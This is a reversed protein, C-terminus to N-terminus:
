KPECLNREIRLCNQELDPLATGLFGDSISYVAYQQSKFNIAFQSLDLKVGNRYLRTQKINLEIVPLSDFAKEIPIIIQTLMNNDAFKQIEELSYCSNLDFGSAYSRRLNTMLAGCGLSQGMDHIFTRVYTGKGCHINLVGTGTEANFNMCSVSKIFIPRAQRKIEKGERALEYLRKGNVSVASYMPPIQMIEGTSISNLIDQKSIGTFDRTELIKGTSDQTDSIKGLQFEAIYHKNENPLIGCAKTAYGVFVPLVGTAMPDLTGAHGLRKMKLIGRLKAIVDFSTFGAPKDVCLIGNINM